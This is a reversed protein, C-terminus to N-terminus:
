AYARDMPAGSRKTPEFMLGDSGNSNHPIALVDVGKTRWIDMTKWLDEPDDSVKATYPLEPVRSTRFIGNRHLNRWISTTTPAM